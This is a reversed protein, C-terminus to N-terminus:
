CENLNPAFCSYKDPSDPYPPAERGGGEWVAPMRIVYWPPETSQEPRHSVLRAKPQSLEACLKSVLLPLRGCKLAPRIRVTWIGVQERMGNLGETDAKRSPM